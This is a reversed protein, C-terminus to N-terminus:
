KFFFVRKKKKRKKRDKEKIWFRYYLKPFSHFRIRRKIALMNIDINEIPHCLTYIANTIFFANALGTQLMAM